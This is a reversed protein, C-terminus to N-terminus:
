QFVLREALVRVPCDLVPDDVEAVVLVRATRSPSLPLVATPQLV